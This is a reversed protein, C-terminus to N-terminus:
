PNKFKAFDSKLQAFGSKLVQIESDSKKKDSKLVAIQDYCTKVTKKSQELSHLLIGLEIYIKATVDKSDSRLQEVESIDVTEDIRHTARGKAVSVDRLIDGRKMNEPREIKKLKKAM